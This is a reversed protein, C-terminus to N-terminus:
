DGEGAWIDQEKKAINDEVEKINWNVPERVFICDRMEDVLICECCSTEYCFKKIKKMAKLAKKDNM